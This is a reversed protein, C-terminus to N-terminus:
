LIQWVIKCMITALQLVASDIGSGNVRLMGLKTARLAVYELWSLGCGGGDRLVWCQKSMHWCFESGQYEFQWE